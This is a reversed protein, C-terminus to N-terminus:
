FSVSLAQNEDGCSSGPAFIREDDEEELCCFLLSYVIFGCFLSDLIASRLVLSLGDDKGGTKKLYSVVLPWLGIINAVVNVLGPMSLDNTIIARPLAPHFATWDRAQGGKLRNVVFETMSFPDLSGFVSAASWQFGHNLLRLDSTPNPLIPVGCAQCPVLEAILQCFIRHLRAAGMCRCLLYMQVLLM